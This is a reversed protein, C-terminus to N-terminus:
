RRRRHSAFMWAGSAALAILVVAIADVALPGYRGAIRGSHLDLLLRQMPIGPTLLAAYREREAGSLAVPASWSVNADRASQWSMADASAFTGAPTRLLLEGGDAGVSEIPVAPLARGELRDVLRGDGRLLYLSGSCAVILVDGLEVFGLPQPREDGAPRADLLWRGNAAVLEHSGARFVARPPEAAIGYWRDLWESHVRAGDLGLVDGHNAIVGTVALLLFFVAAAFGIRAHWRRLQRLLHLRPSM